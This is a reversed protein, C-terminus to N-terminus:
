NCGSKTSNSYCLGEDLVLLAGRLDGVFVSTRYPSIRGSLDISLGSIKGLPFTANLFACLELARGKRREFVVSESNGCRSAPSPVQNKNQERRRSQGQRCPKHDNGFINSRSGVQVKCTLNYYGDREKEKIKGVACRSKGKGKKKRCCVGEDVVSLIKRIRSDRDDRGEESWVARYVLCSRGVRESAGLLGCSAVM